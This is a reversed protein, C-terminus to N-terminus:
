IQDCREVEGDFFDLADEYIAFRAIERVDNTKSMYERVMYPLEEDADYAIELGRLKMGKFHLVDNM